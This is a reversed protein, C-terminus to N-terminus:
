TARWTGPDPPLPSLAFRKRVEPDAGWCLGGVMKVLFVVQRVLYVDATTILHAHRDRLKKPLLFAPLPIWSTFIPSLHFVIAGLVLGVWLLRTSERRFRVLFADLDCDEVGPFAETRPFTAVIASRVLWIMM